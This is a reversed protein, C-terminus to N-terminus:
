SRRRPLVADQQAAPPRQPAAEQNTLAKEKGAAVEKEAAEPRPEQRSRKIGRRHFETMREPLGNVVVGLLRSDVSRLNEVGAALEERRVREHGVVIVAGDSMAALIAADSLPLMPPADIVVKDFGSGIEPFLAKMAASALSETPRLPANGAALAFLGAQQTPQVVQSQPLQGALLNAVGASKKLGLDAALRPHRLDAEILLVKHGAEAWARALLLAVTSKGEGATTSTVTVTHIRAELPLFDLNTRLRQGAEEIMSESDNDLIGRLSLSGTLPKGGLSTAANWRPFRALLTLGAALEIEQPTRLSRRMRRRVVTLAIGLAAGLAAGLALNLTVRPSVPAGTPTPGAVIKLVTQPLPNPTATAKEELENIAPGFNAAIASAVAMAKGADPMATVVTLLLTDKDGSASVAQQAEAVAVGASNGQILRELFKDGKVLAAYSLVRGKSLENSQFASQGQVQPSVVLFRVTSQYSPEITATVAGAAALGIVACLVVIWWGRAM